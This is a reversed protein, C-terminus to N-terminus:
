LTNNAKIQKTMIYILVSTKEMWKPNEVEITQATLTPSSKAYKYSMCVSPECKTGKIARTLIYMIIIYMYVIVNFNCIRFVRAVFM